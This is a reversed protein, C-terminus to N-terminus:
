LTDIAKENVFTVIRVYTSRGEVCPYRRSRFQFLLALLVECPMDLWEGEWKVVPTSDLAHMSANIMYGPCICHVLLLCLVDYM